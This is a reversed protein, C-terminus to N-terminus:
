IIKICNINIFVADHIQFFHMRLVLQLRVLFFVDFFGEFIDFSQVYFLEHVYLYITKDACYSNNVWTM